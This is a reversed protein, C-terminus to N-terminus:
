KSRRILAVVGASIAATVPIRRLFAMRPMKAVSNALLSAIFIFRLWGHSIFGSEFSQVTRRQAARIGCWVLGATKGSFQSRVSAGQELRGVAQEAARQQEAYRAALEGTQGSQRLYFAAGTLVAAVLAVLIYPLIHRSIHAFTEHM